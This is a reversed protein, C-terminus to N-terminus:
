ALVGMALLLALFLTLAVGSFFLLAFTRWVASARSLAYAGRLQRYIHIPPVLILALNLLGGGLGAARLLVFAILMLSMFAISYTVFVLHDYAKYERRYRRRHLFLLWLFPVSIPILAWSFKYANTQLKYFLLQPNENAKRIGEDVRPWGTDVKSEFMPGGAGVGGRAMRLLRQEARAEVLQEDVKATSEGRAALRRREADLRAVKRDAEGLEAAAEARAAESNGVGLSTIGLMSFLAFMLFVSFLFLALPSVFRARQGEVYRRTLEGPRWALLPLTRWAKGDLHM